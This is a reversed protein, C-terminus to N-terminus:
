DRKILTRGAPRVWKPTLSRGLKASTLDGVPGTLPVTLRVALTDMTLHFRFSAAPLASAQRVSIVYSATMRPSSAYLKLARYKCPFCPRIHPPCLRSPSHANGPSTEFDAQTSSDGRPSPFSKSFDASPMTPSRSWASPRFM